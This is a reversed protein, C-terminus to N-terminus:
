VKRRKLRNNAAVCDLAAVSVALGNFIFPNKTEDRGPQM